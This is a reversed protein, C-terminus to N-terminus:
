LRAKPLLCDPNMVLGPDLERKVADLARLFLKPQETEYALRHDRGVAHHHTVTAVHDALVTLVAAKIRSWVRM